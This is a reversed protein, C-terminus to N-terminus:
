DECGVGDGESDSGYIDDGVVYVPGDVYEPGDGTGSV